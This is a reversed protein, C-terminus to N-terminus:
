AIISFDANSLVPKNVLTAIQIQAASGTGDKDFFLAGTQRNYIFRDSQDQAKTGLTFRSASLRKGGLNLNFADNSIVLKDINHRFDRIVDRDRKKDGGLVFRDRGVGGTLRDLGAGGVLEDNGTGGVLRDRSGAGLLIDKGASGILVNRRGNGTITNNSGNGQGRRATGTLTLNELDSSLALSVSSQITDIGGNFNEIVLDNVSNVLYTDNGSGGTLIDDGVGGDLRDNGANSNLIDNGVGGSLNDNGSGTSLVDGRVNSGIMTANGKFASFDFQEFNLVVTGAPTIGTLQNTTSNVNVAATGTGDTLIFSDIGGGGNIQDNQQLNALISTLTDNGAPANIVDKEPTTVLAVPNPPLGPNQSILTLTTEAGVSNSVGDNVLFLIKRVTANPDVAQNRYTVTRLVKQYDAISATGSLSLTGSDPKYIATINTGATSVLLEEQIWDIPNSIIVLASSLTTGDVDSISLDTDVIKIPVNASGTTSFGTGPDLGNLDIVPARNNFVVQLSATGTAQGDSVNVTFTRTPSGANASNNQYTISRLAAEYNAVSSAGSLTLIGTASNFLGVIGNQDTFDLLDEGSAFGTISVSAGTLNPSDIDVLTFADDLVVAGLNSIYSFSPRSPTLVPADNVNAIALDFVTSASTNAQDTAVVQISLNGTNGNLPTGSFTRTIPDFTLWSPLPSGDALRATYTLVDGVDPDTFTGAAFTFSFPTDETANQNPIPATVTPATNSTSTSTVTLNFVDSVTAFSQDTAFVRVSVTGVSGAPPTGSFTRTTADFTLWGPLPAGGDLRATYTLSDGADVDVFSNAAFSYTLPNGVAVTQDVLPANVSPADNVNNITLTFTSNATNAGLDTATVVINLIGVDGNRPTGSFTRTTPNFTLWNPLSDGNLLQASYSLVDGPNNDQFTNAAFTFTFALDETAVQNSISNAVPPTNIDDSAITATVQQTGNETANTVNTIDVLITENAEVFLDNIGTLTVSGSLSGAPIFISSGSASYDSNLLASGSYGLSVTVGQATANSLTATVVTSGGNESFSANNLSLNVLATQDDNTITGVGNSDAIAANSAASLNLNFLENAEFKTDGAVGVTITKVLEGPNFTLTGNTATYDGDAVLATGDATTYNVTVAQGSAASLSVAFAYNTTGGNGELQSVDGISLTPQTDDNTITGLGQNDGVTVNTANSLNVTFTENAENRLDGNVQVTITKVREGPNFTLTGAVASYDGDAITATGNATAYDVTVAQGSNASLSVTFIANSTGSNGETLTADTITLVPAIDDNAITGIGQNDTTGANIPNSLNVTFTENAESLTDGNVSITITKLTEGPNFTLKGSTGTYDGGVATASGDNTAYDVTVTQGSAASLSVVFTTNTSGSNGETVTADGISLGPAVDDNTITGTGQNDAIAANSVNSLNVTFGEDAENVLDGNVKVTITKVIEGLNFTLTGAANVYDANATTATGNATAYDVTVIQGSAASLNVVFVADTTGSNGEAVIVDNLSLSPTGDDNTITGIGQNDAIAANGANSLNVSFTENPENLLDGNVAVTITKLTEGPNFTLSGATSTYDGNATTATGDASAYDVTVVQGSAASLSVVFTANTTGSSGESVSVDGIRLSPPADDNTITGTGQNTTIGANVANSLGVSFTENPENFLDGNVAVTITKSTEGPNFTLTGNSAVYDGNATTATGNNTVYDVTVAQGSAASLNVVFLANTTGSNGENVTVNGISLSPQADDNTITGIGQNDGITASAANSLNVSFTEDPENLLDGNVGITITKLTEGPNFTLTGAASTYDGGVTTASGNATTYDVRVAQGSAASLSVLFIANTSGSNGETVTIDSITLSPLGDDNTITGVGQGDTISANTAGSLSVSFSEDLENLTDGNVGVTITKVSEGPTFTLSGSTNTYDGSVSTATGDVTGYNVTVTQGSLASLSVTFTANTTGSNGETVSADSMSLTPPADDNTINGTGQSNFISANSANSLNVQFTENVENLTDGLVGVTITKVTEGPNFTLNGAIANYDTGATATGNASAYDVTVTQGSSASLSVIFTANTTGSNGETVTANGITLSPVPDDNTITGTGINQGAGIGANTANSLTVQFTENAENIADGTVGVLITKVTEGPNFTLKGSGSTYASGAIATGNSTAYDVTVTQGSAESLSVVFSSNTTGSNGEIISANGISLTPLAENDAITVSASSNAGISYSGSPALNLTLTEPAESLADDIPTMTVDVFSQGNPIIITFNPATGAVSGGTLNYDAASTTSGTNTLSITVAGSSGNRSIRYVGPDTAAEAADADLAAINVVLTDDNTITGTGPSGSISANSANSLNVQFTENAENVVDGTVGVTVTKVTEGPNFTLSGAASIYDSGATATGDATAYDVTVTQGSTASLSVTFTANTTGANGETVTANGVSINAVPDDNTITGTGIDQGVGIGANTSNSLTVQFTENAENLTDGTVSVTITKATEGPNFTLSGSASSYDTGAIATGNSTAYDVTVTQGSVAALSVVFTANTTGSNGEAVSVNGIRLEPLPENDTIIVTASSNAGISYSGSPALNMQLTESAESIADDVPTMTVDVFSQGNPIVITFNPATGAISGGALNYDSPSATSGTTTLSITADGGSGNRSIRYVGPDTGAEAAAADLATINVILTDDNTITGTGPSGTISGNIANSLNVTFTENTESFVDGTVGVTITKVTEGPNFTLTGAASTYDNDALTAAGDATAYDVTVVQGSAASLSVTFTANTTGTNGETITTNSVGINAVPDDNTITGTGVDQGIGIGANFPNSLTVQFTENAENLTDGTVSVTITKATEGPNFTLIGFNDSYDSGAIATGDSTEYDVTVVQGSTASLNVVFTANTTGSNGEAVSVNGISLDPLPENDTIIVTASSNAGISYAGSPALNFTLTESAESIADDVPTMTVDVFSQGNPIVVTFNPPTGAISGGSLNYDSPSATSGTTTLSITADGGSGNRSIRYVGPNSGAEAAAADTATINVVLTDDNTITGTGPSGTISANTANSLNVTFTENTESLIDGAV